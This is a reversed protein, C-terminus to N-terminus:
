CLKNLALLRGLVEENSLDSPWGYAAAVAEDLERHSNALWVPRENYLNTLTRKKLVATPRRTSRSYGTLFPRFRRQFVSCWIPPASGLTGCSMWSRPPTRLANPVRTLQMTLRLARSHGATAVRRVHFMINIANVGDHPDVLGARPERAVWRVLRLLGRLRTSRMLDGLRLRRGAARVSKLPALERASRPRGRRWTGRGISAM